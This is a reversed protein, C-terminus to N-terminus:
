GLGLGLGVALGLRVWLGFAGGPGGDAAEEAFGGDGVIVGEVLVGLGEGELRRMRAVLRSGAVKAGNPSTM